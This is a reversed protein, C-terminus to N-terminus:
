CCVTAQTELLAWQGGIVWQVASGSVLGRVQWGVMWGDWQCDMWDAMWGLWWQGVLLRIWRGVSGSVLGSVWAGSLGVNSQFAVGCQM